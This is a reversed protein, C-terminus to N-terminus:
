KGNKSKAKDKTKADRSLKGSKYDKFRQIESEPIPMFKKMLEEFESSSLGVWGSMNNPYKIFFNGCEYCISTEVILIGQDYVRIGHIPMHCLAGFTNKEVGVTQVLFPLLAKFEGANLERRNLIKVETNHYPLIPFHNEDSPEDFFSDSRKGSTMFDLLFVECRTAHDKITEGLVKRYAAEQASQAEYFVTEAAKIKQAATQAQSMVATMLMIAAVLLHRLAPTTARTM